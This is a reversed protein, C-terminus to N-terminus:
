EYAGGSLREYYPFPWTTGVTKTNFRRFYRGLPNDSLMQIPQDHIFGIVDVSSELRCSIIM